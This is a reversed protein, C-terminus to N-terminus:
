TVDLFDPPRRESQVFESSSPKNLVLGVVEAAGLASLRGCQDEWSSMQVRVCSRIKDLVAM